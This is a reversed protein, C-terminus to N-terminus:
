NKVVHAHADMPNCAIKIKKSLYIKLRLPLSAFPGGTTACWCWFPAEIHSVIGNKM